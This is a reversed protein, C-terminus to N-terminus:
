FILGIFSNVLYFLSLTPTFFPFGYLSNLYKSKFTPNISLEANFEQSSPSQLSQIFFSFGRKGYYKPNVELDISKSSKPKIELVMDNFWYQPLNSSIRLKHSAISDNLIVMKFLAKEGVTTEQSIPSVRASILNKKITVIANFAEFQEPHETNSVKVKFNRVGIEANVPIGIEIGLTEAYFNTKQTFDKPLNEVIASDWKYPFAETSIILEFKEGIGIEGLEILENEEIVAKIPKKIEVKATAISLLLILFFLSFVKKLM